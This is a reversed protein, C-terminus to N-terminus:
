KYIIQKYENTYDVEKKKNDSYSIIQDCVPTKYILWKDNEQLIEWYNDMKYKDNYGTKIYMKMGTVFNNTFSGTM